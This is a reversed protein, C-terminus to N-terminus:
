NFSALTLTSSEGRVQSTQSNKKRPHRGALGGERQRFALFEPPTYRRVAWERFLYRITIREDVEIEYEERSFFVVGEM